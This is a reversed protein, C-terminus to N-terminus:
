RSHIDETIEEFVNFMKKLIIFKIPNLHDSIMYPDLMKEVKAYIFSRGEWRIQINEMNSLPTM